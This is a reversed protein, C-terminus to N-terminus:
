YTLMGMLKEVQIAESSTVAGEGGIVTMKKPSIQALYSQYEKLCNPDSSDILLIPAGDIAARVSGALADPFNNSSALYVSQPNPMLQSAIAASTAFRNAGYIRTPDPLQNYVEESVAGTGGIVITKKINLDKLAQSTAYPLSTSDTLLVPVGNQAAWSGISLADPYNDGNAIVATDSSGVLEAVLKATDFRDKGAFRVCEFGESTLLQEIGKSVAGYGGIIYVKKPKMTLIDDHTKGTLIDPTTMLMPAKYKFALPTAALADPFNEGNTLIVSDVPHGLWYSDFIIDGTQYRDQGFLRQLPVTNTQAMTGGVTLSYKHYNSMSEDLQIVIYYIGSTKPTFNFPSNGNYEDVVKYSSSYYSTSSSDLVRTITDAVSDQQISVAQGAQLALSYIDWPHDLSLIGTVTQNVGIPEGPIDQGIDGHIGIQNGSDSVTLTLKTSGLVWSFGIYYTGTLTPTFTVRGNSDTNKYYTIKNDQTSLPSYIYIDLPYGTNFGKLDLSYTHGKELFVSVTDTSQLNLPQGLQVAYQSQLPMANLKAPYQVLLLLIVGLIALLKITKM